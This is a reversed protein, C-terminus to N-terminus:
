VEEKEIGTFAGHKNRLIRIGHKKLRHRLGRESIGLEAAVAKQYGRHKAMTDIMLKEILKWM